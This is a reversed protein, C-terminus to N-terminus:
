TRRLVFQASIQRTQRCAVTVPCLLQLTAKCRVGYAATTPAAAQSPAVTSSAVVAHGGLTVAPLMLVGHHCGIESLRQKEREM